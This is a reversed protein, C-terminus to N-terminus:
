KFGMKAGWGEPDAAWELVKEHSGATLYGERVAVDTLTRFNTLTHLPIGAEKFARQASEMQYTMIAIVAVPEAGAKRVAAAAALVSGGTSVLDEIVLTRKGTELVGEIQNQHGHKKAEGRVYVMPVNFAAAIWAAWPIGATATGAIAEIDRYDARAITEMQKSIKKRAEPFSILVRNDTYIPSRIGSSYRFPDDPKLTVAGSDLLLKAITVENTM